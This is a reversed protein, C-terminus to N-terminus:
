SARFLLHPANTYAIHRQSDFSRAVDYLLVSPARCRCVFRFRAHCDLENVLRSLRANQPDHTSYSLMKILLPSPPASFSGSSIRLIHM